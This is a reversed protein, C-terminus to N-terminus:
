SSISSASGSLPNPAPNASIGDIGALKLRAKYLSSTGTLVSVQTIYWPPKGSSRSGLASSLKANPKVMCAALTLSLKGLLRPLPVCKLYCGPFWM